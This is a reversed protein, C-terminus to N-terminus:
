LKDPYSIFGRFAQPPLMCGRLAGYGLQPRILELNTRLADMFRSHSELRTNTTTHTYNLSARLVNLDALEAKKLASTELQKTLFGRMEQLAAAHSSSLTSLQSASSTKLAALEQQTSSLTLAVKAELAQQQKASADKLAVVEQQMSSLAASSSEHQGTMSAELRAVDGQLEAIESARATELAVVEQQMSSLAASSSEHQGTMSAELRAVDAQLEAIESAHATELAELRRECESKFVVPVHGSREGRGLLIEQLRSFFSSASYWIKGSIEERRRRLDDIMQMQIRAVESLSVEPQLTLELCRELSEESIWEIRAGPLLTKLNEYDLEILDRRIEEIEVQSRLSQLRVSLEMVHQPLREMDPMMSLAECCLSQWVCPVVVVVPILLRLFDVKLYKRGM